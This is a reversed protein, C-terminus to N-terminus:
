GPSRQRNQGPEPTAAEVARMRRAEPLNVSDRKMCVHCRVPFQLFLLRGVDSLRLRSTWVNKSKCRSCIM